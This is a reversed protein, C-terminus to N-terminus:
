RTATTSPPPPTCAMGATFTDLQTTLAPAFDVCAAALRPDSEYVARLAPPPHAVHWLTGALTVAVGVLQASQQRSLDGSLRQVAAAAVELSALVDLKFERVTEVPADRELVVPTQALLDCFLPRRELSESLVASPLHTGNVAAQAVQALEAAWAQWEQRCLDLLLAERNAFYRLVASKHLGTRAAIATLTVQRVGSEQAVERAASSM